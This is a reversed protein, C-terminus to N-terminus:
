RIEKKLMYIYRYSMKTWDFNNYKNLANNTYETVKKKNRYVYMIKMALDKVDDSNFYFLCDEPYYYLYTDLRTCIVPIKFYIMETLPEM